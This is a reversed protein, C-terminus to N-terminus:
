GRWSKCHLKYTCSNCYINWKPYKINHRLSEFINRVIEQARVMDDMTFRLIIEKGTKCNFVTISDPLSKYIHNFALMSLPFAIDTEIRFTDVTANWHKIHLIDITKDFKQRVIPLKGHLKDEGVPILYERDIDFGVGCNNKAWDHFQMLSQLGSKIDDSNPEYSANSCSAQWKMKMDHPTLFKEDMLSYYFSKVVAELCGKYIETPRVSVDPIGKIHQFYHSLPCNMYQYLEQMDVVM